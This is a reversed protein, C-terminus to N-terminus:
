DSATDKKVRVLVHESSNKDGSIIEVPLSKEGEPHFFDKKKEGSIRASSSLAGSPFSSGSASLLQEVLKKKRQKLDKSSLGMGFGGSLAYIEDFDVDMWTEDVIDSPGDHATKIVNSRAILYFHGQSDLLGLDVLYSRDSVGFHVYWNRAELFVDVDFSRHANKGDFVIDTVDYVRLISKIHSDHQKMLAYVKKTTVESIDWYAFAWYPDRAMLVIKTENYSYPLESSSPSTLPSAVTESRGGHYSSEYDPHTSAALTKKIKQVSRRKRANLRRAARGRPKVFRPSSPNDAKKILRILENKRYLYPMKIGKKRALQILEKKSLSELDKAM